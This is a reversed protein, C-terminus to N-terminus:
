KDDMAIGLERVFRSLKQPKVDGWPMTRARPRTLHLRRAARTVAVYANRREDAVDGSSGLSRFDPFSGENMGVLVVAAFELGKAAHITLARVGPSEHSTRRVLSLDGLLGQISVDGDETHRRHAAIRESFIALDAEEVARLEDVKSLGALRRAEDLLGRLLLDDSTREAWASALFAILSGPSEANRLAAASLFADVPRELEGVDEGRSTALIALLNRRSLLDKPNSAVRLAYYAAKFLASDFLGLEGTAFAYPVSRREMEKLIERLQFRNRSLICVKEPTVFADEDPNLWEPDLGNELVGEVFDVVGRAEALEDAYSTATVHGKAKAESQMETTVAVREPNHAILANAADVVEEACRFNLHLPVETAGFDDIFAKLFRDSAGAFRYIFQNGDAVLMVNRHEDGCLSRLVEYQALSTDQGEDVLVYRFLRRYHRAVRPHETFVRYALGLLDDFDVANYLRLTRDYAAYAVHAEAIEETKRRPVAVQPVLDRKFRGIEALLRRLSKVEEADRGLVLGEDSLGRALAEIRDDENEYVSFGSTVGVSEGYHQLVDLCFAHFTKATVRRWEEAIQAEIRTVMNDAAKTTFTLALIRFRQGSSERLLRVIRQTLVQTKGSGPPAVVLYAGENLSIIRRQEETPKFGGSM